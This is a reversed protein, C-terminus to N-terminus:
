RPSVDVTACEFIKYLYKTNIHLKTPKRCYVLLYITTILLLEVENVSVSIEKNDTANEARGNAHKQKVTQKWTEIKQGTILKRTTM